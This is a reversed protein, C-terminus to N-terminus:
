WAPRADSRTALALVHERRAALHPFVDNPELRAARDILALAHKVDAQGHPRLEWQPPGFWRQKYVVGAYRQGPEDCFQCAGNGADIGEIWDPPQDPGAFLELTGDDQLVLVCASVGKQDRVPGV